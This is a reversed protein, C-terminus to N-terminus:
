LIREIKRVMDWPRWKKTRYAGNVIEGNHQRIRRKPNVTFSRPRYLLTHFSYFLAFDPFLLFLNASLSSLIFM